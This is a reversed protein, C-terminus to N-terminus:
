GARGDAGAFRRREVAALEAGRGATVPPLNPHWRDREDRRESVLSLSVDVATRDLTMM